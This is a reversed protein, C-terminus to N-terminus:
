WRGCVQTRSCNEPVFAHLFLQAIMIGVVLAPLLVTLTALAHYWGQEEISLETTDFFPLVLYVFLFGVLLAYFLALVAVPYSTGHSSTYWLGVWLVVVLLFYAIWIGVIDM